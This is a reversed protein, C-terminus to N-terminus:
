VTSPFRDWVRHGGLLETVEELVETAAEGEM